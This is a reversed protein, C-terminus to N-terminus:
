RPSRGAVLTRVKWLPHALAQLPEPVLGQRPSVFHELLGQLLAYNAGAVVGDIIAPAAIHRPEQAIRVRRDGPVEGGEKRGDALSEFPEHVEVLGAEPIEILEPRTELGVSQLAELM